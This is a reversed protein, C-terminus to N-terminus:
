YVQHTPSCRLIKRQRCPWNWLWTWMTRDWSNPKREVSSHLKEFINSEKDFYLNSQLRCNTRHILKLSIEVLICELLIRVARENITDWRIGHVCGRQWVYGGKGHMGGKTMCVEKGHMGWKGHVGKAVCAGRQWAHGRWWAPGGRWVHGGVVCAGPLWAHGGAVMCVGPLWVDGGGRPCVSVQLFM